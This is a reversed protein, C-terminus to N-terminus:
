HTDTSAQTKPLLTVLQVQLPHVNMMEVTKNKDWSGLQKYLKCVIFCIKKQPFKTVM